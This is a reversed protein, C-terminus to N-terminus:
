TILVRLGLVVKVHGRDGINLLAIPLSWLRGLFALTGFCARTCLEVEM